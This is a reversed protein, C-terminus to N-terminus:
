NPVRAYIADFIAEATTDPTILKWNLESNSFGMEPITKGDHTYCICKVTYNYKMGDAAKFYELAIHHSFNYIGRPLPLGETRYYEIARNRGADSYVWKTFARFVYGSYNYDRRISNNDVYVTVENTSYIWVWNAAAAATSSIMVTCMLAVLVILKKVHTVEKRTRGCYDPM